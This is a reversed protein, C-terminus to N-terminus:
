DFDNRDIEHVQEYKEGDQPKKKNKLGFHHEAQRSCLRRSYPSLHFSFQFFFFLCKEHFHVRSFDSLPTSVLFNGLGMQFNSKCASLLIELFVGGFFVWM